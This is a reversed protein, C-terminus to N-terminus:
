VQAGEQNPLSFLPAQSGATPPQPLDAAIAFHSALVLTVFLALFIKM